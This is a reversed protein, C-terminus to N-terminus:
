PTIDVNAFGVLKDTRDGNGRYYVLAQYTNETQAFNGESPLGVIEGNNKKWLYQYSYYGQKLPITAEYRKLAENWKMKYAPLLRDQTWKGNIYVEGDTIDTVLYFHVLLYESTRDIEFNDSNRIIFSGNADKDFVYNPRPEAQWLYAHYLEGDWGMNEIGMTPKNVDLLEFKRYENGGNFILSKNHTWTLTRPTIYQPVANYVANSWRQNQLVVTKIQSKYDTVNLNALDITMDVQQHKDNITLDTNTYATLGVRVQEDLVMFYATLVTQNDDNQDFVTVKYNGSMKLQCRENPIAFRYHSYLTQTNFSETVDDITNEEFGSLYDSSFLGESVKWDADCHEVKYAYRHYLHTLDDFAIHIAENDGLKILPM